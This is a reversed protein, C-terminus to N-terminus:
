QSVFTLEPTKTQQLRPTWKTVLEFTEHFIKVVASQQTQVTLLVVCLLVGYKTHKCRVTSFSIIIILFHSLFWQVTEKNRAKLWWLETRQLQFQEFCLLSCCCLTWTWFSSSNAALCAPVSGTSIWYLVLLSGMWGPRGQLLRHRPRLKTNRFVHKKNEETQEVADSWCMKYKSYLKITGIM